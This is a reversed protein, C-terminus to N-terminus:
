LRRGASLHVLARFEGSTIGAGIGFRGLELAPTQADNGKAITTVAGLIGCATLTALARADYDRPQGNPYAFLSCPRGTMRAVDSISDEIERRCTTTPLRKLIAHSRTHAGFEVLGSASMNLIETQSLIRYPSGIEVPRAPDDGLARLITQLKSIMVAHPLAKLQKQLADSALAKTSTSSLDFQWSEWDLSTKRTESLARHLRCFWITDRTGVLGPVLFVTAPLNAEVLIPYAFEFVSRFGDDFTIAVTPRRISGERLRGVVDRLRIVDFHRKMYAIQNRFAEEELFCWDSVELPTRVIGHYNVITVRDRFLTRHLGLPVGSLALAMYGARRFAPKLASMSPSMSDAAM